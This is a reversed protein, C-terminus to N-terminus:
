QELNVCYPSTSEAELPPSNPACVSVAANYTYAVATKPDTPVSSMITTSTNCPTTTVAAISTGLTTPYSGNCISNYQEMANKITRIDSKRKADRAKKQATSYSVAGMAVLISIIGIVVLMELLTFSARQIVRFKFNSVSFRPFRKLQNILQFM